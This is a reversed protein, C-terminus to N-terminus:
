TTEAKVRITRAETLFKNGGFFSIYKTRETANFKPKSLLKRLTKQTILFIFINVIGKNMNMVYFVNTPVVPHIYTIIDPVTFLVLTSSTILTVTTTM